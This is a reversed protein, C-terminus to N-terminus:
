NQSRIAVTESDRVLKEFDDEIVENEITRTLEAIFDGVDDETIVDHGKFM